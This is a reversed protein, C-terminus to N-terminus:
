DKRLPHNRFTAAVEVDVNIVADAMKDRELQARLAAAMDPPLRLMNIFEKEAMGLNKAKQPREFGTVILSCEFFEVLKGSDLISVSVSPPIGKGDFKKELAYRDGVYSNQQAVLRDLDGFFRIRGPDLNSLFMKFCSYPVSESRERLGVIKSCNIRSM